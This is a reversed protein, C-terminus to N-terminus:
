CDFLNKSFFHSVLTLGLCINYSISTKIGRCYKQNVYLIIWGIGFGIYVLSSLFKNKPLTSGAFTEHCKHNFYCRDKGSDYNDTLSWTGITTIVIFIVTLIVSILPMSNSFIESFWNLLENEFMPGSDEEHNREHAADPTDYHARCRVNDGHNKLGIGIGFIILIVLLFILLVCFTGLFGLSVNNKTDSIKRLVISCEKSSNQKVDTNAIKLFTEGFNELIESTSTKFTFRKSKKNAELKISSEIDNKTTYIYIKYKTARDMKLGVKTIEDGSLTFNLPEDLKLIKELKHKKIIYHQDKKSMVVKFSFYFILNM